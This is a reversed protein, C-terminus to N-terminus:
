KSDIVYFLLAMISVFILIMEYGYRIPQPVVAKATDTQLVVQIAWGTVFALFLIDTKKLKM